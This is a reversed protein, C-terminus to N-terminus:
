HANEKSVRRLAIELPSVPRDIDVRLVEDILGLDLDGPYGAEVYPVVIDDWASEEKWRIWPVLRGSCCTNLFLYVPRNDTFSPNLFYYKELSDDIQEPTASRLDFVSVCNRKRFYSNQSQGFTFRFRGDSNSRVVGESIIQAVASDTTVHFVRNSLQPLLVKELDRYHVHLAREIM